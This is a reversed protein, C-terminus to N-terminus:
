QILTLYRLIMICFVSAVGAVIDDAIIGLGGKLREFKKIPGPKFIDFYRFILFGLIHNIVSIGLVTSVILQGIVEDIVIESPDKKKLKNAYYDSAYWGIPILVILILYIYFVGISNNILFGIIITFLSAVTGPARTFKGIFGCTAVQRLLIPSINM